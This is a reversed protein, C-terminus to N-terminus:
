PPWHERVAALGAAGPPNAGAPEPRRSGFPGTPGARAGTGAPRRGPGTFQKAGPEIPEYRGCPAALRLGTAPKGVESGGDRRELLVINSAITWPRTVMRLRPASCVSTSSESASWTAIRSAEPM